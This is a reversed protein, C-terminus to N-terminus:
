GADWHPPQDDEPIPGLEGRRLRALLAAFHRQAALIEARSAGATKLYEIGAPVAVARVGFSRSFWTSVM